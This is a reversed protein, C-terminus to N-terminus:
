YVLISGLTEVRNLFRARTAQTLFIINDKKEENTLFIGADVHEVTLSLQIVNLTYFERKGILMASMARAMGRSIDYIYVKM